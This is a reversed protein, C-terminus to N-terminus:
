PRTLLMTKWTTIFPYYKSLGILEVYLPQHRMIAAFAARHGRAVIFQNFLGGHKQGRYLKVKVPKGRTVETVSVDAALYEDPRRIEQVTPILLHNDPHILLVPHGDASLRVVPYIRNLFRGHAADYTKLQVYARGDLDLMEERGFSSPIAEVRRNIKATLEPYVMAQGLNWDARVGAAPDM